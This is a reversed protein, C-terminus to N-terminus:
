FDSGTVPGEDGWDLSQANLTWDYPLFRVDYAARALSDRVAGEFYPASFRQVADPTPGFDTGYWKFIRSLAITGYGAPIRNKRDAHLFRRAQDDLQPDLRPGTYAERRLQPCSKAACVLAFHIRPEDFRVRIIEHEIEDLTRATDAVVGVEMKFPSNEKTPTAPGPTTAWINKVPYHDVILKLTYANYANIWFALRADRDLSAPRASALRDLYPTLVSDAEAQLAEYDVNGEPGVFRELLRDFRAHNMSDRVTTSTVVGQGPSVSSHGGVIALALALLAVRWIMDATKPEICLSGLGM